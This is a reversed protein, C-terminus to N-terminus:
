TYLPSGKDSRLICPGQTPPYCHLFVYTMTAEYTLILFLGCIIIIFNLVRQRTSNHEGEISETTQGIMRYVTAVCFRDTILADSHM